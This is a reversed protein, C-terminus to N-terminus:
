RGKQRLLKSCPSSKESSITFDIIQCSAKGISLRQHGANMEAMSQAKEASCCHLQAATQLEGLLIQFRKSALITSSVQKAASIKRLRKPLGAKPNSFPANSCPHAALAHYDDPLFDM